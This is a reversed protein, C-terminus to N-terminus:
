VDTNVPRVVISDQIYCFYETGIQLSPLGQFSQIDIAKPSVWITSVVRNM